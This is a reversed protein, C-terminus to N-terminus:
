LTKKKKGTGATPPASQSSALQAKLRALEEAARAERELRARVAPPRTDAPEAPAPEAATADAEAESADTEDAGRTKKARDLEGEAFSLFDEALSSLASTFSRGASKAAAGAAAKVAADRLERQMDELKDSASKPRDEDDAM